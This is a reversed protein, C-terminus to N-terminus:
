GIFDAFFKWSLHKGRLLKTREKKKKNGTGEKQRRWWKRKLFGCSSASPKRLTPGLAPPVNQCDLGVLAGRNFYLFALPLDFFVYPTHVSTNGRPHPYRFNLFSDMDKPGGPTREWQISLYQNKWNNGQVTELTGSKHQLQIDGLSNVLLEMRHLQWVIKV